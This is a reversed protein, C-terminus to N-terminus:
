YRAGILKQNCLSADFEEGPVCKGHWGPVQQYALKGDTDRDSVSPHEPWIGGDVIGVIVDEGAGDVKKSADQPAGLRDWLGGTDTLGLFAPTSATDLQLKEDPTVALVGPVSAMKAAASASLDAAFGNYAYTYSYIKKGGGAAQLAADQRKALHDAYAKVAASTPNIKEGKAPKTAKLGSVGGSYAVVPPEALQVIYTGAKAPNAEVKAAPPRAEPDPAAVANAPVLTLSLASVAVALLPVRRRVSRKM